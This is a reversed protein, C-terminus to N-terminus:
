HLRRWDRLRWRRERPLQIEGCGRGWGWQHWHPWPRCHSLETIVVTDIAKGLASPQFTGAHVPVSLLPAILGVLVVPQSWRRFSRRSINGHTASRMRGSRFMM